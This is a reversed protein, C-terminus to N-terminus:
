RAVLIREGSFRAAFSVSRCGDLDRRSELAAVWPGVNPAADSVNARGEADLNLHDFAGGLVGRLTEVTLRMELKVHHASAPQESPGSRARLRLVLEDFDLRVVGSSSPGRGLLTSTAIDFRRNAGAGVVQGFVLYVVVYGMRRM